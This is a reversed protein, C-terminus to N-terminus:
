DVAERDKMVQELPPGSEATVYQWANTEENAVIVEHEYTAFGPYETRLFRVFNTFQINTLTSWLEKKWNSSPQIDARWLQFASNEKQLWDMFIESGLH